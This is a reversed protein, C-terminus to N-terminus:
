EAQERILIESVEDFIMMAREEAHEKSECFVVQVNYQEQYECLKRWMFKGNMRVYKIQKKPIGSNTPFNMLDDISFECIVYKWRFKSMRKMEAEFAKRKKGLNMALEGTSAKRELVLEKELGRITYDGTKLGWRAVALCKKSLAFDWGNKERTDKLVVYKTM